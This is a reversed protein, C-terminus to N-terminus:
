AAIDLDIEMREVVAAHQDDMAVDGLQLVALGGEGGGLLGGIRRLAVNLATAGHHLGHEVVHAVADHQEVLVLCQLEGVLPEVIMM